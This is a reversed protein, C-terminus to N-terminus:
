ENQLIKQRTLMWSARLIANVGKDLQHFFFFFQVWHGSDALSSYRYISRWKDDFDNGVNASLPSNRPCRPPDRRGNERNELSSSSCKWGLLEEITSLPQTSWTGSGSSRLFDPLALFPFIHFNVNEGLIYRKLTPIFPYGALDFFRQCVAVAKATSKYRTRPLERSAEMNAFHCVAKNCIGQPPKLANKGNKFTQCVSVAVSRFSGTFATTWFNVVLRLLSPVETGAGFRFV